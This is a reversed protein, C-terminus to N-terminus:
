KSFTNELFSFNEGLAEEIEKLLDSPKINFAEAIRWFTSLQLDKNGQELESWISKSLDIENCLRSMSTNNRHQKIIKALTKQFEKKIEQMKEIITRIYSCM